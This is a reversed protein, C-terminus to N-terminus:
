HCSPNSYGSGGYTQKFTVKQNHEQQWKATFKKIVADHAAKPVAYGVLTIEVDKTSAAGPNNSPNSQSGGGNSCAVLSILSAGLCLGSISRKVQQRGIM